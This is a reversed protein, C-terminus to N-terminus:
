FKATVTLGPSDSPLRAGEMRGTLANTHVVPALGVGRAGHHHDGELILVMTVVGAVLLGGGVALEPADVSNTKFSTFALTAGAGAGVFGLSAGVLQWMHESSGEDSPAPDAASASSACALIALLAAARSFLSRIM